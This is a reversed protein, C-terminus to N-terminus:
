AACYNRERAAANEWLAYGRVERLLACRPRPTAAVADGASRMPASSAETFRLPGWRVALGLSIAWVIIKSAALSAAKVTTLSPPM